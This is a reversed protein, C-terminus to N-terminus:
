KRPGPKSQALFRFHDVAAFSLSRSKLCLFVGVWAIFNNSASLAYRVDIPRGNDDLAPSVDFAALICAVGLWASLEAIYQGPCKSSPSSRETLKNETSKPSSEGGGSDLYVLKAPIWRQSIAKLQWSANQHSNGRIWM